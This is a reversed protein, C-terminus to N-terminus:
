EGKYYPVNSDQLYFKPLEGNVFVGVKNTYPYIVADPSNNTDVDLYTLLESKSTNKLRHAGEKCAPFVVVDGAAVAIEGVPTELLGHGNIVYFVEENATHYHYPYNSKGPCISYFTVTCKNEHVLGSVDYRDFEYTQHNAVHNPKIRNMSTVSIEAISM